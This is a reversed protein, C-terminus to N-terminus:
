GLLDEECHQCKALDARTQTGCHPCDLTIRGARPRRGGKSGGRVFVFILGIVLLIIIIEPLGPAGIFGIMPQGKLEDALVTPAVPPEDANPAVPPEDANPAM